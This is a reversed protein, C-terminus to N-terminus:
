TGEKMSLSTAITADYVSLYRTWITPYSRKMRRVLSLLEEKSCNKSHYLLDEGRSRSGGNIEYNKLCTEKHLALEEIFEALPEEEYADLFLLVKELIQKPNRIFDEYYVLCRRNPDWNDFYQLNRFYHSQARFQKLAKSASGCHRIFSEIPNRVIVLLYDRDRDIVSIRRDYHRHFFHRKEPNRYHPAVSPHIIWANENDGRDIITKLCYTMWTRGSRPYTLFIAYPEREAAFLGSFCLFTLIFKLSHSNLQL